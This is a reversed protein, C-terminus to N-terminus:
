LKVHPPIQCSPKQLDKASANQGCFTKKYQKALAKCPPTNSMFAKAFGERLNKCQLATKLLAKCTHTNPLFAKAFRESLKKDQLAMKKFFFNCRLVNRLFVIACRERLKQMRLDKKRLYKAHPINPLLSKRIERTKCIERALQQATNRSAREYNKM